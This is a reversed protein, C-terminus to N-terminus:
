TNPASNQKTAIAASSTMGPRPRMQCCLLEKLDANIIHVDWAHNTLSAGPTLCAAARVFAPATGARRGTRCERYGLGFSFLKRQCLRERRGAMKVGQAM